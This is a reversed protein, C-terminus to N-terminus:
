SPLLPVTFWATGDYCVFMCATKAAMSLAADASLANITDDTNPYVKLIANATDDNKVFCVLGAAAAPLKVGKTGDAATVWTIGTAIAAADGQASGAAAVTASPLVPMTSFTKTGAITQDGATSVVSVQTSYWDTADYAVFVVTTYPQVSVAANASGGDIKDSTNPYVKLVANANNKVICLGGAAATPLKVGKTGDAASVLSFGDALAGADGQASGAAAVTASDLSLLGAASLNFPGTLPLCEFKTGDAILLDGATHDVTGVDSLDDTAMTDADNASRLLIKVMGTTADAVELAWGMFTNGTATTTACGSGATGGYPDGDEDWYVATGAATINSTDKPVNFVGSVCIAGLRSAAIDSKCIGVLKEQVVVDGATKDTDPTYDLMNGEQVFTAPTQAM